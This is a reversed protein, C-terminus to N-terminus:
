FLRVPGRLELVDDGGCVSVIFSCSCATMFAYFYFICILLVCNYFASVGLDCVEFDRVSVIDGRWGFGACLAGGM